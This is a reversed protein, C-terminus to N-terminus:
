GGAAPVRARRPRQWEFRHLRVGRHERTDTRRLRPEAAAAALRGHLDGPWYLNEVVFVQRAGTPTAVQRAIESPDDTVVVRGAAGIRRLHHRLALTPTVGVALVPREPTALAALDAAANRWDPNQKYVTWRDDYVIWGAYSAVGVVILFGSAARRRRVDLFATAGSAMLIAFFPLVWFAYREIYLQRFGAGTAGWLAAPLVVLLGVLARGGAATASRWARLIGLGLLTAAALQLALLGPRALLDSLSAGYPGLRWLSNGHLFWQGALM